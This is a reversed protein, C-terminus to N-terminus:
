HKNFIVQEGKGMKWCVFCDECHGSCPYAIEQYINHEAVTSTPLDFPNYCDLGEWLSFIITLNKPMDYKGLFGNVLDYKKTFCLFKINPRAKAILSMMFLYDYDVIDGSSHWRCFGHKNDPLQNLIDILVQTSNENYATLNEMYRAKVNKFRYMGKCAYCDKSCPANPICTIIAPLNINYINGLKSNGKSVKFM